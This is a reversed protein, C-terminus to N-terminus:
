EHLIRSNAFRLRSSLRGPDSRVVIKEVFEDLQEKNTPYYRTDRIFKTADGCMHRKTQSPNSSTSSLSVRFSIRRVLSLCLITSVRQDNNTVAREKRRDTFTRPPDNFRVLSREVPTQVGVYKQVNM